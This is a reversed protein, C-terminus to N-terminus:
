KAADLWTGWRTLIPQPSMPIDPAENKFIRTRSPTKLFVKKVSSILQNVTNFYSRVEEAVRRFGHVICTVHVM